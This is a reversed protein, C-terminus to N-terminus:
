LINVSQITIYLENLGLANVKSKDETHSPVTHTITLQIHTPDDNSIHRCNKLTVSSVTREQLISSM